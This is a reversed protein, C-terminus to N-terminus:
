VAEFYIFEISFTQFWVSANSRDPPQITVFAALQGTVYNTADSILAYLQQADQRIVDELDDREDEGFLAPSTPYAVTLEATENRQVQEPDVVQPDSVGGVRRLEFVRLASGPNGTAWQRLDLRRQGRRYGADSILEPTLLELNAYIRERITEFTTTSM